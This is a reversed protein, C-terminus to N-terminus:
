FDMLERLSQVVRGIDRIATDVEATTTEISVSFRLSSYAEAESLGMALLTPSAGPRGSSCASVQSCIIGTDELHAMLAMGDVGGFAINSTNCVRPAAAGNINLDTITDNLGQEFRNRLAQMKEVYANFDSLRHKCAAAFGIIGPLNETGGRRGGEQGGGPQICFGKDNRNLSLLAGVGKPAHMKHGSVSIYDVPLASAKFPLRGIVQCADLLVPADFKRAIAGISEIDQMVGTESNAWGLAIAAKGRCESLHEELAAQNWGGDEQLPVDRINEPAQTDFMKRVSPHEASSTILVRGSSIFHRQVAINAETAGSTFILAEPSAGLLEAVEGRARELKQSAHAGMAHISSPNGWADSLSKTMAEIVAPLPRTTSNNDLYIM